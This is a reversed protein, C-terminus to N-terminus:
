ALKFEPKILTVKQLNVCTTDILRNQEVKTIRFRSDSREYYVAWVNSKDTYFDYGMDMCTEAPVPLHISLTGKSNRSAYSVGNSNLNNDRSQTLIAQLVRHDLKALRNSANIATVHVDLTRAGIVFSAYENTLVYNGDSAIALDYVTQQSTKNGLKLAKSLKEVEPLSTYGIKHVIDSVNPSSRYGNKCYKLMETLENVSSLMYTGPLCLLIVRALTTRYAINNKHHTRWNHLLKGILDATAGSHDSTQVSIKYLYM